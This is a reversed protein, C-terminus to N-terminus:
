QLYIGYYIWKESINNIKCIFYELCKEKENNSVVGVFSNTYLKEKEELEFFANTNLNDESKIEIIVLKYKDNNIYTKRKEDIILSHLSNDLTFNIKKSEEIENKGILDTTTILAPLISTSNPLPLKCLFGIDKKGKNEIYVIANELGSNILKNKEGENEEKAGACGM